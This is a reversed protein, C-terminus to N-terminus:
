SLNIKAYIVSSDLEYKLYRSIIYKTAIHILM